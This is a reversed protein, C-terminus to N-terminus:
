EDEDRDSLPVWVQTRSKGTYGCERCGNGRSDYIDNTCGSCARTFSCIEHVNNHIIAYNKRRDLRVQAINEAHEFSSPRDIYHIEQGVIKHGFREIVRGM